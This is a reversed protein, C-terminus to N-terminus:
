KRGQASKRDEAAETAKKMAAQEKEAAKEADLSRKLKEGPDLHDSMVEIENGDDDTKIKVITTDFFETEQNKEAQREPAKAKQDPEASASQLQSEASAAPRKNEPM